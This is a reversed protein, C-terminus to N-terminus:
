AASRGALDAPTVYGGLALFAMLDSHVGARDQNWREGTVRLIRLGERQLWADKVRDREFDQATIHYSRGDLELVLGYEPWYCDLEWRGSLRVNRQPEPIEPRTLLWRDFAREFGSKRKPTPLYAVLADKLKGTGPRREHRKLARELDALDLVGIRVATEILRDLEEPEARSAIEVLLRAVSSVKFGRRSRIESRHPARSARVVKLGRHRPTSTAVVGVEIRALNLTRLGWMSAATKGALWAGEGVVLLAAKLHADDALPSRGDGYVGRHLRRLDGHAMQGAIETRSFGLRYLQDMSIVGHNARLAQTMM